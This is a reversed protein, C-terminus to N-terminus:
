CAFAGFHEPEEAALKPDFLVLFVACSNGNPSVKVDGVAKCDLDRREAKKVVVPFCDVKVGAQELLEALAEHVGQKLEIKNLLLVTFEFHLKGLLELLGPFGLPEGDGFDQAVSALELNSLWHEAAVFLYLLWDLGVRLFFYGARYLVIDFVVV